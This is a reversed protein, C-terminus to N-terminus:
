KSASPKGNKMATLEVILSDINSELETRSGNNWILRDSGSRRSETSSIQAELRARAEPEPLGRAIARQLQIEPDAELSVVLDFDTAMGAEVLLTAELVVVGTEDEVLAEFDRRMLPHIARELQHRSQTNSFVEQALRFHDVGGEPTLMADGFLERVAATGDGDPLYLNAVLRDSDVVRIGADKLAQAVTSKGTAMGGTLGVRHSPSM